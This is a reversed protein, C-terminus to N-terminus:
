RVIASELMERVEEHGRHFLWHLLSLPYPYPETLRHRHPPPFRLTLPRIVESQFLSFDLFQKDREEALYKQCSFGRIIDIISVTAGSRHSIGSAFHLPTEIQLVRRLLDILALNLDLLFEWRKYYVEALLDAYWDFYPAYAYNVQLARQHKKAWHRTPDIRVDKIFQRGKGKTLVPVSLTLEGAANAIRTRNVWDQKSFQIDDALVFIDARLMRAFFLMGPLYGPKAAALIMEPM